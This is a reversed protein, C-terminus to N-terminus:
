NGDPADPQPQPQPGLSSALKTLARAIVDLHGNMTRLEVLIDGVSAELTAAAAPRACPPPSAGPDEAGEERGAAGPRPACTAPRDREDGRVGPPTASPCGPLWDVLRPAGEPSSAVVSYLGARRPAGSGSAPPAPAAPLPPLLPPLVSPGPSFAQPECSSSPSPLATTSPGPDESSLFLTTSSQSDLTSPESDPAPVGGPIRAPSVTQRHHPPPRRQPDSPGWAALEKVCTLLRVSLGPCSHPLLATGVACPEGPGEECSWAGPGLAKMLGTESQLMQLLGLGECVRETQLSRVTTM